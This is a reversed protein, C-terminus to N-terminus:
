FESRITVQLLLVIDLSSSNYNYDLPFTPSTDVFQSVGNVFLEVYNVDADPLSANDQTIRIDTGLPSNATIGVWTIAPTPAVGVTISTSISKFCGRTDHTIDVRVNSTGVINNTSLQNDGVISSEFAGGIYWDFTYDNVDLGGALPVELIVTEDACATVSNITEGVVEPLPNIIMNKTVSYECGAPTSYTYEILYSQQPNYEDGPNTGHYTDADIIAKGQNASVPAADITFSGSLLLTGDALTGQLEIGTEDYCFEQNDADVSNLTFSIDPDPYITLTEIITGICNLTPHTYEFYVDLM